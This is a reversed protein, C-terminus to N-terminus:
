VTKWLPQTGVLLTSPGGRGCGRWCKDRSTKNAVATRLATLRYRVTTKIQMARVAPSASRRKMIAMEMEMDEQSSHRNWDETWKRVPFLGILMRPRNESVLTASKPVLPSLPFFTCPCSGPPVSLCPPPYTEGTEAVLHM